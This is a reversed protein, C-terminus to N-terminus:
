SVSIREVHCSDWSSSILALVALMVTDFIMVDDVLM